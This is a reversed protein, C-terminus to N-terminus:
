LQGISLKCFTINLFFHEQKAKTQFLQLSKKDANQKRERFLMLVRKNQIQVQGWFFFQQQYRLMKLSIKM